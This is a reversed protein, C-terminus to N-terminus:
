GNNDGRLRKFYATVMNQYEETTIKGEQLLRDYSQIEGASVTANASTDTHNVSYSPQGAPASYNVPNAPRVHPASYNVPNAAPVPGTRVTCDVRAKKDPLAVVMLMGAIGTFFVWAFYSRDTWGKEEAIEKFVRCVLCHIVIVVILIIVAFVGYALFFEELDLM